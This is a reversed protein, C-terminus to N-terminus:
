PMSFVHNRALALRKEKSLLLMGAILAKGAVRAETEDLSDVIPIAAIPDLATLVFLARERLFRADEPSNLHISNFGGYMSREAAWRALAPDAAAIGVAFEQTAEPDRRLEERISPVDECALILANRRDSGTYNKLNAGLISRYLAEKQKVDTQAHAALALATNKYYGEVKQALELALSPNGTGITKVANTLAAGVSYEDDGTVKKTALLRALPITARSNVKACLTVADALASIRETKPLADLIESARQPDLGLELAALAKTKTGGALRKQFARLEAGRLALALPALRRNVEDLDIADSEKLAQALWFRAREPQLSCLAECVDFSRYFRIYVDSLSTIRRRLYADTGLPDVRARITIVGGEIAETLKGSSDRGASLALAGDAEALANALLDCDWIVSRGGKGPAALSAVEKVIQKSRAALQEPTRVPPPLLTVVADTQGPTARLIGASSGKAATLLGGEEPFKELTFAGTADTLTRTGQNTTGGWVLVGAVPQGKTDVVKGRVVGIQREVITNSVQRSGRALTGITVPRVDMQSVWISLTETATVGPVKYEGAKDTVINPLTRGQYRSQGQKSVTIQLSVGAAPKGTTSIVKGTVPGLKNPRLVVTLPSSKLPLTISGPSVVEWEPATQVILEFGEEVYSSNDGESSWLGGADTKQMEQGTQYGDVSIRLPAGVLPKGAEDVVRAAIIPAPKVELPAVQFRKAEPVTISVPTNTLARLRGYNSQILLKAEGPLLRMAWRGDRDTTQPSGLNWTDTPNHKGQSLVSVNPIGKDTGKEVVRGEVLVGPVLTLDGLNATQGTTTTVSRAEMVAEVAEDKPVTAALTWDGGPLSGITFTGDAATQEVVQQGNERAILWILVNAQPKGGVGLVRGTVMAAPQAVLKKSSGTVANRLYNPENIAVFTETKAPIGSITWKGAADTIAEYFDRLNFPFLPVNPQAPDRLYLIKVRVGALPKGTTDVVSGSESEGKELVIKQLEERKARLFIKPTLGPALVYAFLGNREAEESVAVSFTGKADTIAPEKSLGFVKAGSVAKGEFDVVVGTVDTAHVPAVIMTLVSIAGLTLTFM